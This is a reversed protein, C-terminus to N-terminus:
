QAPITDAAGDAGMFVALIRVPQAGDDAGFHPVDMAEMFADGPRYTRKGRDGYDVTIEGELIYAFLPVGHKHLNTKAGPKLTIIAATAHAPGGSPYHLAEGVVTTGTSLLPTVTVGNDPAATPQAVAWMLAIPSLLLLIGGSMRRLLVRALVVTKDMRETAEEV